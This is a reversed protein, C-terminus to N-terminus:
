LGVSKPDTEPIPPPQSGLPADDEPFPVAEVGAAAPRMLIEWQFGRIYPATVHTVTLGLGRTQEVVWDRDYVVAGTVDPQTTYIAAQRDQLMPFAARDFFFWTSRFVGDARLIRRIERLYHETQPQTLHTFVSHANVLTFSADPAPFPLTSPKDGPNFSLNFVDHHEFVFQPARPTLNTRCWRIMGPHLDVGLYRGPGDRQQMLQRAFRGCGCGFDFVAAYDKPDLTPYVYEGTPNDFAAEDTPGVLVRM